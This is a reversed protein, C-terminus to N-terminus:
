CMEFALWTESVHWLKRDQAPLGDLVGTVEVTPNGYDHWIIIGGPTIIEAAWISDALVAERGHDGDIYVANAATPMLEGRLRLQFRPDHEVLHGPRSPHEGQQAPIQFQYDRDVDIGIYRKVSRSTQLVARATLGINVGIEVMLRPQVTDLLALLVEQEGPQMYQRVTSGRVGLASKLITPLPM